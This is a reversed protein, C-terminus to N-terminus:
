WSATDTYRHRRRLVSLHRSGSMSAPCNFKRMPLLGAGKSAGSMGAFRRPVRPGMSLSAAIFHREMTNSYNDWRENGGVSKGRGHSGSSTRM